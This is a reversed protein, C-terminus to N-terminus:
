SAAVIGNYVAVSNPIATQGPPTVFGLPLSGGPTLAGSTSMSHFEIVPGAVTFVRKSGPDFASIEAGNNSTITAAKTLFNCPTGPPCQAKSVTDIILLVFLISLKFIKFGTISAHTIVTYIKKM